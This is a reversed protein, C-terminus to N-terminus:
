AFIEAYVALFRGEEQEWNLSERAQQAGARLDVANRVIVPHASDLTEALRVLSPDAPAAVGDIVACGTLWLGVAAALAFGHQRAM